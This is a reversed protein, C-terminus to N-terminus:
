YRKQKSRPLNKTQRIRCELRIAYADGNCYKQNGERITQNIRTTKRGYQFRLVKDVFEEKSMGM